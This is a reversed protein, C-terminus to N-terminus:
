DSKKVFRKFFTVVEPYKKDLEDVIRTQVVGVAATLGDRAISALNSIDQKVNGTSIPTSEHRRRAAERAAALAAEITERAKEDRRQGRGADSLASPRGRRQSDDGRM